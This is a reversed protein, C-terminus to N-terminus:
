PSEYVVDDRLVFLAADKLPVLVVGVTKWRWGTWRFKVYRLRLLSREWPTLSKAHLRGTELLTAAPSGSFFPHARQILPQGHRYGHLFSGAARLMRPVRVRLRRWTIM